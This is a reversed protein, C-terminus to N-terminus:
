ILDWRKGYLIKGEEIPIENIAYIIVQGYKDSLLETVRDKDNAFIYGANIAWEKREDNHIGFAVFFLKINM